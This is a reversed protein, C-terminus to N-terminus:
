TASATPHGVPLGNWSSIPKALRTRPTRPIMATPLRSPNRSAVTIATVMRPKPAVNTWRSSIKWVPFRDGPFVRCFKALRARGDRKIPKRTADRRSSAFGSESDLVSSNSRHRPDSSKAAPMIVAITAVPNPNPNPIPWGTKKVM